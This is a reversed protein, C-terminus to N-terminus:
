CSFRRSDNRTTGTPVQGRGRNVVLHQQRGSGNSFGLLVSLEKLMIDWLDAACAYMCWNSEKKRRRRTAMLSQNDSSTLRLMSGIQEKEWFPTGGGDGPAVPPLSERREGGLTAVSKSM